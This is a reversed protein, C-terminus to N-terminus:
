IIVKQCTPRSPSPLRAYFTFVVHQVWLRGRNSCLYCLVKEEFNGVYNPEFWSQSVLDILMVFGGDVIEVITHNDVKAIYKRLKAKPKM